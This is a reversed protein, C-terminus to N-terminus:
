SCSTTSRAIPELLRTLTARCTFVEFAGGGVVAGDMLANSKNSSTVHVPPVTSTAAPQAVCFACAILKETSPCGNGAAAPNGTVPAPLMGTGHSPFACLTVNVAVPEPDGADSDRETLVLLVGGGGGTPLGTIVAKWTMSSMVHEPACAETGVDHAVRL